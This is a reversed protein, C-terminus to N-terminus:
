SLDHQSNSSVRSLQILIHFNFISGGSRDKISWDPYKGVWWFCGCTHIRLQTQSKIAGQVIAWCAGRVMSNGLCSYGRLLLPFFHKLCSSEAMPFFFVFVFGSGLELSRTLGRRGFEAVLSWGFYASNYDKLFPFCM